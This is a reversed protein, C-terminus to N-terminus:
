ARIKDLVKFGIISKVLCGPLFPLVGLMVAKQFGVFSALNLYGLFYIVSWGMLFAFARKQTREYISGTIFAAFLYGIIYGANPGMLAATGGAFVPAGLAGQVLFLATALVARKSGLFLSLFLVLQIRFSIPVPTFPLPIELRGIFAILLSSFLVILFDRAITKEKTIAHIM